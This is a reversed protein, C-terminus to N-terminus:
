RLCLFTSQDEESYWRPITQNKFGPLVNMHPLYPVLDWCKVENILTNLEVCMVQWFKAQFTPSTIEAINVEDTEGSDM